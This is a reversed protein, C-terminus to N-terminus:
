VFSRIDFLNQKKVIREIVLPYQLSKGYWYGHGSHFIYERKQLYAVADNYTDSVEVVKSEIINTNTVDLMHQRIEFTIKDPLM